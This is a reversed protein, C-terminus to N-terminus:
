CRQRTSPDYRPSQWCTNSSAACPGNRLLSLFRFSDQRTSKVPLNPQHYSSQHPTPPAPPTGPIAGPALFPSWGSESSQHMGESGVIAYPQRRSNPGREERWWRVRFCVRQHPNHLCQNQNQCQVHRGKAVRVVAKRPQELHKADNVHTNTTPLIVLLLSEIGCATRQQRVDLALTPRRTRRSRWPRVLRRRSRVSRFPQSGHRSDCKGNRSMAATLNRPVQRVWVVM